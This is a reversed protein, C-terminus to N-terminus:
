EKVADPALLDQAKIDDGPASKTDPKTDLQPTDEPYYMPGYCAALVIPSIVCLAGLLLKHIRKM